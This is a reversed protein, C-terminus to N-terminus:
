DRESKRGRERGPLLSKLGKFRKIEEELLPKELRKLARELRNLTGKLKGPNPYSDPKSLKSQEVWHLISLVPLVEEDLFHILYETRVAKSCRIKGSLLSIIAPRQFTPASQALSGLLSLIEDLRAPHWNESLLRVFEKNSLKHWGRILELFEDLQGHRLLNGAYRHTARHEKGSSSRILKEMYTRRVDRNLQAWINSEPIHHVYHYIINPDQLNNELLDIVIL